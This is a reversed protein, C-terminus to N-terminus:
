SSQPGDPDSAAKLGKGIHSGVTCVSLGSNDEEMETRNSKDCLVPSVPSIKPERPFNKYANAHNSFVTEYSEATINWELANLRHMKVKYPHEQCIATRASDGFALECNQSLALTFEHKSITTRDKSRTEGATSV